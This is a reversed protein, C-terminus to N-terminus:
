CVFVYVFEERERERRRERHICTYACARVKAELAEITKRAEALEKALNEKEQVAAEFDEATPGGLQNKLFSSHIIPHNSPYISRYMSPYMSPYM